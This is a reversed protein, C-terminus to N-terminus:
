VGVMVEEPNIHSKLHLITEKILNTVRTNPVYINLFTINDQYIKGKILICYGKKVKSILKLKSHPKAAVDSLKKILNAQLM